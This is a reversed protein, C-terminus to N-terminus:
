NVLTHIKFVKYVVDCHCGILATINLARPWSHGFPIEETYSVVANQYGV